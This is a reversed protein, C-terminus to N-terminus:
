VAVTFSCSSGLNEGQTSTDLSIRRKFPHQEQCKLSPMYGLEFLSPRVDRWAWLRKHRTCLRTWLPQIQYSKLSVPTQAYCVVSGLSTLYLIKSSGYASSYSIYGFGLSISNPMKSFRTGHTKAEVLNRYHIKKKNIRETISKILFITKLM